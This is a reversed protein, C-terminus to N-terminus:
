KEQWLKLHWGAYSAQRKLALFNGIMLFVYSKYGTISRWPQEYCQEFNIMSEIIKEGHAMQILHTTVLSSVGFQRSAIFLTGGSKNSTTLLFSSTYSKAGQRQHHKGVPM